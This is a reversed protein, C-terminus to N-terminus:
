AVKRASPSYNVWGVKQVKTKADILPKGEADTLKCRARVRLDRCSGAKAAMEIFQEAYQPADFTQSLQRVKRSAMIAAAQEDVAAAWEAQTLQIPPERPIPNPKTNPTAKRAEAIAVDLTMGFVAFTSM